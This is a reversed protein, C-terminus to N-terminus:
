RREKQQLKLTIMKENPHLHHFPVVVILFGNITLNSEKILLMAADEIIKAIHCEDQSMLQM